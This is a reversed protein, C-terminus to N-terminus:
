FSANVEKQKQTQKKTTEKTNFATHWKRFWKERKNDKKSMFVEQKTRSELAQSVALQYYDNDHLTQVNEKRGRPSSYLSMLTVLDDTVTVVYRKLKTQRVTKVSGDPCRYSTDPLDVKLMENIEKVYRTLTKEVIQLQKCLSKVTYSKQLLLTILRDIKLTEVQKTSIDRNRM